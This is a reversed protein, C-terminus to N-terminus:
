ASNKKKSRMILLNSVRDKVEVETAKFKVPEGDVLYAEFVVKTVKKDKLSELLLYFAAVSKPINFM